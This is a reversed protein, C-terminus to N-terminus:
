RWSGVHPHAAVHHRVLDNRTSRDSREGHALVKVERRVSAPAPAATCVLLVVSRAAQSAQDAAADGTLARHNRKACVGRRLPRAIRARKPAQSRILAHYVQVVNLEVHTV